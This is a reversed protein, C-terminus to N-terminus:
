FRQTKSVKEHKAQTWEKIIRLSINANIQFEEYIYDLAERHFDSRKEILPKLLLQHSRFGALFIRIFFFNLIQYRKAISINNIQNKPAVIYKFIIVKFIIVIAKEPKPYHLFDTTRSGQAQNQSRAKM